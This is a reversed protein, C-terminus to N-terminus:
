PLPNTTQWNHYTTIQSEPTMPEQMIHLLNQNHDYIWTKIEPGYHTDITQSRYHYITGDKMRITKPPTTPTLTPTNDETILQSINHIPNM